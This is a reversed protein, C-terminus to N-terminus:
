VLRLQPRADAEADGLLLRLRPLPCTLERALATMTLGNDQALMFARSIMVPIEGLYGEVPEPQFLGLKRLQVLRQYARRYAPDPVAGIERCRYVPAHDCSQSRRPTDGPLLPAGAVGGTRDPAGLTASPGGLEPRQRASRVSRSAACQASGLGGPLMVLGAAGVAAEAAQELVQGGESAVLDPEGPVRAVTGISASGVLAWRSAKLRSPAAIGSV